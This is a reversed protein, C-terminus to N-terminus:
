VSSPSSLLIVLYCFGVFVTGIITWFWSFDSNQYYKGLNDVQDYLLVLGPIVFAAFILQLSRYIVPLGDLYNSVTLIWAFQLLLMYSLSLTLTAVIQRNPNNMQEIRSAASTTFFVMVSVSVVFLTILSSPSAGTM